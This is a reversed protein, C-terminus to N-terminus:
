ELATILAEEFEIKDTYNVGNLKMKTFERPTIILRENSDYLSVFNGVM